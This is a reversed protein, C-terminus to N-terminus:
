NPTSTSSSDVITWFRKAWAGHFYEHYDVGAMAATFTWKEGRDLIRQHRVNADATFALLVVGNRKCHAELKRRQHKSIRSKGRYRGYVAESLFSRDIVTTVNAVDRYHIAENIQGLYLQYLDVDKPPVDNHILRGGENRDTVRTAFTTKGTGDAGELLYVTPATDTM